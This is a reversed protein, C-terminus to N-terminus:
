RSQLYAVLNAVQTPTFNELLFSHRQRGTAVRNDGLASVAFSPSENLARPRLLQERLATADRTRGIGTRDAAHCAACNQDFYTKGATENGPEANAEILEKYRGQQRAYHIYRAIDHLQRDSL